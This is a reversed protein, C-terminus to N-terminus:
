PAWPSGNPKPIKYGAPYVLYVARGSTAWARDFDARKYTIHPPDSRGPDNFIPDGQPTFGILVVIHGDNEGRVPKGRLLDYSVSTAVPVGSVIWSELERINNLRSVYARLGKSAVFATNFIWNGTGGWGPDYVGSQTWPVDLMLRPEATKDGWYNLLMTTSTPSCIVGGNAYNGQNVKRVDLQIGFANRNSGATARAVKSNVFSFDLKNIEAETGDDGPLCEVRVKLEKSLSTLLLTDTSMDGDADKQGNISTRKEDNESWHAIEYFKTWGAPKKAAVSIKLQSNGPARGSFSVVLDDFEIPASLSQEYVPRSSPWDLSLFGTAPAGNALLVSSLGVLPWMIQMM